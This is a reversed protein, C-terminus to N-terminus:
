VVKIGSKQMSNQAIKLVAEELDKLIEEDLDTIMQAQSTPRKGSAIEYYIHGNPCEGWYNVDGYLCAQYNGDIKDLCWVIKSELTKREEYEMFLNHIKANLPSPLITKYYEIAEQEKQKKIIKLEPNYVQASMSIDGAKAEVIDHVLAMELMKTYDAPHKLYPAIMMILFTLKFIHDSDTEAEGSSLLNDRKVLCLKEIIKMFELIQLATNM